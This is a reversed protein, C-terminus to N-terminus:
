NSNFNAAASGSCVRTGTTIGGERWVELAAANGKAVNEGAADRMEEPLMMNALM